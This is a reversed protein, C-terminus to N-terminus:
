DIKRVFKAPNGAWIENDPINHTVVSGAGVVSHYGVTVGKMIISCAGIFAGERICVAASKPPEKAVRDEYKVPHFDNDWIKTNAGILVNDEIVIKKSASLYALSM